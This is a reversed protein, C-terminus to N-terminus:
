PTVVGLSLKSRIKKEFSLEKTSQLDKLIRNREDLTLPRHTQNPFVIELNALESLMRFRQVIPLALPAREDSPDLACKGPQVPKLPRQFFIFGKIEKYAVDSLPTGLEKQRQWLLDFEQEYMARDAYLDYENKGKVVHPRARLTAHAKVKGDKSGRVTRGKRFTIYLYEGLTRAGADSIAQRLKGIGGKMGKIDDAKQKRDTKRNSKFGRRQNLHFIARGLHHPPLLADLGIARLEYPDLGELQKRANDETPMLGHRILAAMLDDRRDVFRDRRKRAGRAGRREVALPTDDPARGNSFIRVGIRRISKPQNERDLDLACWGLSNTGIDIGLRYPVTM